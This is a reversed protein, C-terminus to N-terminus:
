FIRLTLSFSLIENVTHHIAKIKPAQEVKGM